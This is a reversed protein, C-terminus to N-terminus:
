RSSISTLRSQKFKIVFLKVKTRSFYWFTVSIPRRCSRGNLQLPPLLDWELSKQDDEYLSRWNHGVGVMHMTLQCFEVSVVSTFKTIWRNTFESFAEDIHDRQPFVEYAQQLYSDYEWAWGAKSFMRFLGFDTLSKSNVESVSLCYIIGFFAENSPKINKIQCCYLPILIPKLVM